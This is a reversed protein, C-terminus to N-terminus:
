PFTKGYGAPMNPDGDLITPDLGDRTMAHKVVEVLMGAKLVRFYRDFKPDDKLAPPEDNPRESLSPQHLPLSIALESQRKRDRPLPKAPAPPFTLSPPGLRKTQFDILMAEANDTQVNASESQVSEPESSM